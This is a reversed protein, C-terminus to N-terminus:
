NSPAAATFNATLNSTTFNFNATTKISQLDRGMKQLAVDKSLCSDQDDVLSHFWQWPDHKRVYQDVGTPNNGQTAPCAAGDLATSDRFDQMYGKWTLGREELQNALTKVQAPLYCGQGIVQGHPDTTPNSPTWESGSLCDGQSDPNPAQGSVMAIYNDLSNHGTGWYQTLLNGQKTLVGSLYPSFGPTLFPSGGAVKNYSSNELVLM